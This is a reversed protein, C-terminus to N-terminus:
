VPLLMARKKCKKKKSKSKKKACKKLAAARQGTPASVAPPPPGAAVPGNTFVFNDLGYHEGSGTNVDPQVDTATADALVAKFQAQTAPASTGAGLDYLLWGPETLSGSFHQWATTNAPPIAKVLGQGVSDNIILYVNKGATPAADTKFDLSWTGGYNATGPPPDPAEFLSIDCPAVMTPCGTEAIADTDAIYGDPSGGTNGGGSVFTAPLSGGNQLVVFSQSSTNFSYSFPTAVANTPAILVLALTTSAMLSFAIKKRTLM